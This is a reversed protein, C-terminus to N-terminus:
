VASMALFYLGLALRLTPLASCSIFAPRKFLLLPRFTFFGFCAIAIPSESARASPALTGGRWLHLERAPLVPASYGSRPKGAGSRSSRFEFHDNAVLVRRIVRGRTV